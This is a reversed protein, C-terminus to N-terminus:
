SFYREFYRMYNFGGDSEFNNTNLSVDLDTASFTEGNGLLCTIRTQERDIRTPNGIFVGIISTAFTLIITTVFLVKILRYWGKSQLEQLTIKKM